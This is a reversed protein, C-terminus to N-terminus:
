FVWVGGGEVVGVGGIVYDDYGGFVVGFVLFQFYVEVGGGEYFICELEWFKLVVEVLIIGVLKFVNVIKIIIDIVVDGVVLVWVQIGAQKNWLKIVWYCGSGFLDNM